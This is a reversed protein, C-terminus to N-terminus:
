WYRMVESDSFAGYLGGSDTDSAGRLLLRKTSIEVKNDEVFSVNESM